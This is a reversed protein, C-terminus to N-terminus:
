LIEKAVQPYTIKFSNHKPTYTWIQSPGPCSFGVSGVYADM